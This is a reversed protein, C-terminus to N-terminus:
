SSAEVLPNVRPLALQEPPCALISMSIFQRMRRMPRTWIHYPQDSALTDGVATLGMTVAQITHPLHSMLIL